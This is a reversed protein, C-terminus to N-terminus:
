NLFKISRIISPEKAQGKCVQAFSILKLVVLIITAIFALIPVIFTWGLLVAAIGILAELITYKMSQRMHFATYESEKAALLAIIMGFFDLLYVLMCLLKHDSIDAKSFKETHDYPDAKPVPAIYAPTEMYSPAPAPTITVATGCVPCYLADDEMQNRCNPCIKM